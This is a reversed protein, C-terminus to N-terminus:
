DAKLEHSRSPLHVMRLSFDPPARGNWLCALEIRRTLRLKRLVSAVQSKITNASKYLKAAIEENTMGAAVLRAVVVERASLVAELSGGVSCLHPLAFATYDRASELMRQVIQIRQFAVEFHPQLAEMWLIEEGSFDGLAMSKRMTLVTKPRNEDWICLSLLAGWGEAQMVQRFYPSAQLHDRDPLLDELRYLRIGVNGHLFSRAPSLQRRLPWPLPHGASAQRHLVRFEGDDLYNLYLSCSHPSMHRTLLAWLREHLDDFTVALHLELFDDVRDEETDCSARSSVRM